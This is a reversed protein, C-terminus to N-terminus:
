NLKISTNILDQKLKNYLREMETHADYDNKVYPKNINHVHTTLVKYIVDIFEM